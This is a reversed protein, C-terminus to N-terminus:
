AVTINRSAAIEYNMVLVEPKWIKAMCVSKRIQRELAKQIEDCWSKEFGNIVLVFILSAKDAPKYDAPFGGNIIGIDIASYLNLSHTFKDCIDAIEERFLEKGTKNAKIPNPASNNPNPFSSKAEVFLLNDGKARIFEVSKVNGDLKTYQQSKEVYFVNDTIFYMGSEFIEKNM